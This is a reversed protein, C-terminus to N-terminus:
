FCMRFGTIYYESMQKSCIVIALLMVLLNCDDKTKKKRKNKKKLTPLFVRLFHSLQTGSRM